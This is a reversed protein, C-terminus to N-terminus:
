NLVHMTLTKIKEQTCYVFKIVHHKEKAKM